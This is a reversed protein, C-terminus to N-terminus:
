EQSQIEDIFELVFPKKHINHTVNKVPIQKNKIAEERKSKIIEYFEDKNMGTIELYYELVQPEIQDYKEALLM